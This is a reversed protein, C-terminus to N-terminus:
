QGTGSLSITQPSGFASDALKLTATLSGTAAPKFGITIVCNGGAALSAGCTNTQSFSSANAGSISIGEGTANFAVAASGKNTVTVKQTAAAVGKATSPFSVFSSSLSIPTGSGGLTLHQPSGSANDAVNLQASLAGSAAPKFVITIACSAGAALTTGCTHTQTFSSANTGSITISSIDLVASGSNTLNIAPATNTAGIATTSFTLSQASLTVAPSAAVGTGSLAVTQPSAFANDGISVKATLAGTIAPKFTVTITCSANVAVSSGCTNTQSFSAANAGAISIGLGTGKLNLASKGTNKLTVSQTASTKGVVTSAFTLSTASLSVVPANALPWKGVVNAVNLSGLGTALDFGTAAAFGSLTGAPDGPYIVNCYLSGNECPMSNTGSDIDNFLCAGSATAKEASCSSYSQTAALTYLMANPNGQAAGAKQNILAMVGAMAPSAVSTGGVEQATPESASSYTCANGGASVCILYASGLFGDSAFFSVDPLDRHGDAPIGTVGTQWAPKAYGGSCSEPDASNSETCNSSGGGGGITDVLPALNLGFNQSIYAGSEIVFNCASEADIVGPVGIYTADASLDPLALPNVCTSNWVVEPVYGLASAATTSSNAASWYPAPAIGWNFDTGGVSTNYTTSTIGSVAVGFQAAYPVGDYADFGQDCAPSGADGSAVFVAIGEAYASQWLNNYETNGADGLVVECEGYSVNLIPAVKNHVAYSESLYLPDTTATLAASTVLVISAGKAVAGAWEVDLSNEVLDDYCSAALSVCTGPDANTIVVKPVNVPLGFAKRFSAIDALNINSTGAIAITQGTGDIPSAAQWLPLVNYIKAFDYPAVDEIQDGYANSVGFEPHIGAEPNAGPLLLGQNSTGIRRWGGAERDFLVEHGLRHLPRPFFDHLAKVGVIVPALAAPIRPDSMNSIHREGRGDKTPILLQHIETHFASQVQASTGSFRISLHDPAVQDVTFGKGRLWNEVADIDSQAPGFRDGIEEPELWQHYQPSKPDYQAAVLANFAAQRAPDRRLVLVLDGLVIDPEVKGLDYRAKALPPTNGKLSVLDSEDIPTVVRVPAAIPSADSARQGPSLAAASGLLGCAAVAFLPLHLLRM